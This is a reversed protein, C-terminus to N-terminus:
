VLSNINYDHQVKVFVNNLEICAKMIEWNFKDNSKCPSYVPLIKDGFKTVCVM